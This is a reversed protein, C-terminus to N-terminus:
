FLGNSTRRSSTRRVKLASSDSSLRTVLAGVSNGEYDFYGIEQRLLASFTAKRMRMTLAEGSQAFSIGALFETLGTVCGISFIIMAYVNTLRQQEAIDPEAFLRFIHSLFLAFMPQGTGNILSSVSGLLIWRWEPANHQLIRFSFPVRSCDKAKSLSDLDTDDDFEDLDGVSVSSQRSISRIVLSFLELTDDRLIPEDKRSQQRIIHREEEEDVAEEEEDDDDDEKQTQTTVLEYYLGKKAILEEHTGQEVVQGRDFGVILDAHRITSLRHAIVITTRGEKAKDLTDQVIRESTNDISLDDIFLDREEHTLHVWRSCQDSRRSSSDDSQLDICSCHGSSSV